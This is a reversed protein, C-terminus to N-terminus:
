FTVETYKIFISGNNAFGTSGRFIVRTIVIADIASNTGITLSIALLTTQLMPGCDASFRLSHIVVALSEKIGANRVAVAISPSTLPLM